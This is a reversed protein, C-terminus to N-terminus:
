SLRTSLREADLGRSAACEAAADMLWAALYQAFSNRVYLRFQAPADMCQLMAQTQALLTQAASRPGFSRAHMDLSCGKALVTRTDTGAIDIITRNASVDTVAHRVARLTDQLSAVLEENRGDGAVVLWEDPGLWIVQSNADGTWGNPREPIAYGLVAGVGASFSPDASSGRLNIQALFALECVTFRANSAEAFRTSWAALPSTRRPASDTSATV